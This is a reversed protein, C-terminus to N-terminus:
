FATISSLKITLIFCSFHEFRNYIKSLSEFYRYHITTKMRFSLSLATITQVHSLFIYMLFSILHFRITSLLSTLLNNGSSVQVIITAIKTQSAQSDTSIERNLGRHCSFKPNSKINQQDQPGLHEGSSNDPRTSRHAMVGSYCKSGKDPGTSRCGM